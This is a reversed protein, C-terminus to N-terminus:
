HYRHKRQDRQKNIENCIKIEIDFAFIGFPDLLENVYYNVNMKSIFAGVRDYIYISSIGTSKLNAVYDLVAIKLVEVLSPKWSSSRHTLTYVKM